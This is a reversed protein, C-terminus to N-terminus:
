ATLLESSEIARNGQDRPLIDCTDHRHSHGPNPKQGSLIQSVHEYSNAVRLEPCAALLSKVVPDQANLLVVQMGHIKVDKVLAALGQAATYDTHPVYACDLVLASAAHKSENVQAIVTERLFDVAPFVLSGRPQVVLYKPESEVSHVSINPRANFYLLILVDVVIGVLLGKEVGLFLCALFTSLLPVMDKRNSKWLPKIIQYDVMFILAVMIVAALSCKPIFFFYPTLLGLALVIMVGTYLGGLTSRVGSVNNVASRSFAGAVPISRSFSGLINCLGLAIMEQSADVRAGKSFAKAIAVNSSISILPVILIGSGLESIMEFVNLVRGNLETSLPPFALSPLGSVIDGTLIFPIMGRQYLIFATISCILVVLANRGTSVFWFLGHVFKHTDKDSPPGIRLDKLKRLALLVTISIGGLVLDWLRTESIHSLFAEWTDLFAESSFKLGFLGKLQTSAITISAASTFGSIVPVSVFDVLFGLRLVGCLLEVCGSVFCLLVAFDANLQHTYTFTLLSLMATPGISVQRSTGFVIYVLCGVWASYLGYISM